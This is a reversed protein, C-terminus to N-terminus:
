KFYGTFKFYKLSVTNPSNLDTLSPRWSANPSSPLNEFIVSMKSSWQKKKNKDAEEIMNELNQFHAANNQIFNFFENIDICGDQNSDADNFLTESKEMNTFKQFEQMDIKGNRDEDMCGFIKIIKDKNKIMINNINMTLEREIEFDYIINYMCNLEHTGAWKYYTKLIKKFSRKRSEINTNEHFVNYIRLIEQRRYEPIM